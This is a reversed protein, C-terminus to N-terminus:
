AMAIWIGMNFIDHVMNVKRVLLLFNIKLVKFIKNEVMCVDVMTKCSKRDKIVCLGDDFLLIHRNTM